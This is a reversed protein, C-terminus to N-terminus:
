VKGGLGSAVREIAEDGVCSNEDAPEESYKGLLFEDDEEDVELMLSMALPVLGQVIGACRRAMAPATESITVMLELATSRTSFEFDETGAITLM